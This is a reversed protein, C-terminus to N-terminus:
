RGGKPRTPTMRARGNPDVKTPSIDDINSLDIESVRRGLMGSEGRVRTDPKNDTSYFGKGKYHVATPHFILNRTFFGCKPCVSGETSVRTRRVEFRTNCCEFEYLPM